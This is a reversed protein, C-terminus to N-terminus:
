GEVTVPAVRAAVLRTVSVSALLLAGAAGVALWAAWGLPPSWTAHAAFLLPGGTGVASRRGNLYWTVFQLAAAVTALASLVITARAPLSSRHRYVLEGCFMPFAVLVPLYERGIIGIGAARGFVIWVAPALLVAVVGAVVVARRERRSGVRLAVAALAGVFAFWLLYVLLPVRFEGYGFGAVLDRLGNWTYGPVQGLAHRIARYAIPTAPGYLGQWVLAALIGLALLGLGVRAPRAHEVVVRRTTALGEFAVFGVILLVAWELGTPHSLVLASGSLGLLVWVWAPTLDPRGIRLLAATMAIGGATTLGSPSLSAALFIAMPTCAALVGALSLWGAAPDFVAAAAGILFALAIIVAVVRGLRDAQPPDHGGRLVLAPALLGLPPYNGVSTILRVPPGRLPPRHLCAASDLPNIIYCNFPAPDLAAPVWVARQTSKDFKIEAPDAGLNVHPAADGILIGDSIGLARVFHDMEDPAAFPPNAFVWALALLTWGLVLRTLVSSRM